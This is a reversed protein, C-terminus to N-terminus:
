EGPTGPRLAPPEPPNQAPPNQAPPNKPATTEEPVPNAAPSEPPPKAPATEPGPRHRIKGMRDRAKDLKERKRKAAPELRTKIIAIDADTLGRPIVIIGDTIARDILLETIHRGNFFVFLHKGVNQATDIHLKHTGHSDLRFAVARSGDRADFISLIEVVDKESVVALKSISTSGPRTKMEVPVAFTNTPDAQTELHFRIALPEQKALALLGVPFCVLVLRRVIRMAYMLVSLQLCVPVCCDVVM